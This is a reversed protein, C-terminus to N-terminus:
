SLLLNSYNHRSGDYYIVDTRTGSDKTNKIKAYNLRVVVDCSDILDGNELGEISKAPGVLAVTKDDLFHSYEEKWNM